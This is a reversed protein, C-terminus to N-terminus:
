RFLEALCGRNTLSVSLEDAAPETMVILKDGRVNVSRIKKWFAEGERNQRLSNMFSRTFSRNFSSVFSESFLAEPLSHGNAVFSKPTVSFQGYVYDLGFRATGNFWRGKLRAWRTPDFPVSMEVTMVSDAMGIHIQRRPNAFDPHRAILANLDTASFEFTERRNSIAAARFRNLTENAAKFETDTPKDFTVTAPKASTFTDVAKQYLYWTGGLALILFTLGALSTILCGRAFCGMGEPRSEADAM